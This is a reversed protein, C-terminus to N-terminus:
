PRAPTAAAARARLHDAVADLIPGIALAATYHGFPVQLRRPRGLAEWLVDRQPAPIVTDFAAQVWLVKDTAVARALRIPEHQLRTRLEDQLVVDGIGDHDARWQRWSRVRGESSATVLSPVDGGSLCIAVGRLEPEEAALATAVMGGLSLGLVHLSAPAVPERRLWQLLLRQHLVTRRFLEDLDRGRQPPRMASAVRACFAVDFGHAQMRSAVHEMLDEGGALIPVVLVLPAASGDATPARRVDFRVREDGHGLLGTRRGDGHDRLELVSPQPAAAVPFLPTPGPLTPRPWRAPADITCAGLLALLALPRLRRCRPM